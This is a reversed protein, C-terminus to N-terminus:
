TRYQPLMQVTVCYGMCHSFYGVCLSCCSMCYNYFGMYHSFCCLYYGYFGVYHRCRWMCLSYCWVYCSCCCVYYSCYFVCLSYYGTYCRNFGVCGKELRRRQVQSLSFGKWLLLWKSTVIALNLLWLIWQMFSPNQLSIDYEIHPFYLVLSHLIPYHLIKSCCLFAILNKSLNM